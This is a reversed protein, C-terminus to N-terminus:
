LPPSPKGPPSPNNPKEEKGTQPVEGVKVTKLKSGIQDKEM